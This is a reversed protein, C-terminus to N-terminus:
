DWSRVDDRQTAPTNDLGDAGRSWAAVARMVPGYPGAVVVNDFNDDLRVQYINNPTRTEDRYWPDVFAGAPNLSAAEFEMYAIGKTNQGRLRTVEAPGMQMVSGAAFDWKRHDQLYAKWALEIQRVESRARVKRAQEKVRGLVPLLLGMLLMIIAIVVLMEVLTFAARRRRWGAMGQALRHKM